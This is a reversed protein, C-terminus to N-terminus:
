FLKIKDNRILKILYQFLEKQKNGNNYCFEDEAERYRKDKVRSAGFYNENM